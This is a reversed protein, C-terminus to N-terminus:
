SGNILAKYVSVFRRAILPEHFIAAASAAIAPRNFQDYHDMMQLISELLEPQNGPTCLIGNRQDVIEPLGGVRTAIVPVGCCLSECVVCSLNEHHSFMLLANAGQLAAPVKNHVIEGRWEIHENLGLDAAVQQYSIDIVGVMTLLWDSRVSKLRSLVNFLAGVNKIPHLNSVHVFRFRDVDVPRYYFLDANVSNYVVSTNSISFIASLREALNRSVATVRAAEAIIRRTTHRFIYDRRFFNDPDTEYYGSWHESVIYPVGFHQKLWLAGIGARMAVHVQALDPKGHKDVYAKVEQVLLKKYARYSILKDVLKFGTKVPKYYVIIETLNDTTTVVKDVRSAMKEDKVVHIVYGPVLASVATIHRQIFDGDQKGTRNPYWSALHLVKM